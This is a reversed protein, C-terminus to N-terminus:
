VSCRRIDCTGLWWKGVCHHMHDRLSCHYSEAPSCLGAAFISHNCQPVCDRRYDMETAAMGFCEMCAQARVKAHGQRVLEVKISATVWPHSRRIVDVMCRCALDLKGLGLLAVKIQVQCSKTPQRSTAASCASHAQLTVSLLTCISM